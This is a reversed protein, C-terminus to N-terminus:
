SSTSNISTWKIEKLYVEEPHLYHVPINHKNAFAVEKAVGSSEEWGGICLVVLEDCRSLITFDQHLWFLEDRVSTMGITEIPHSHAIPCFVVEGKEMLKAAAICAMEYRFHKM